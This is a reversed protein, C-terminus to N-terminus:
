RESKVFPALLVSLDAPIKTPRWRDNVVAHRSFGRAVLRDASERDYIEYQFCVSAPGMWSLWTRVILLDDYRSPGVYQCRAEVIPIYLKREVELDRYRVGLSRMLETRGLEFYRFYNAYYIIGMKDTDAYTVRVEFEHFKGEGPESKLPSPPGSP